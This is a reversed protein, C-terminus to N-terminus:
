ILVVPPELLLVSGFEDSGVSRAPVGLGLVAPREPAVLAPPLDLAEEGPKLVEPADHNSPLAFEAVVLCEDM